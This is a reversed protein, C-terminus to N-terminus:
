PGPGPGPAARSRMRQEIERPDKTVARTLVEAGSATILIEDEIRV